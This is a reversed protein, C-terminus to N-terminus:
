KVAAKELPIGGASDVPVLKGHLVSRAEDFSYDCTSLVVYKGEAGTEVESQIESWKRAWNLYSELDPGPEHFVRYTESDASTVYGAFLEVRYDQEPTLLWMVPHAEYYSQQMWDNLPAFMTKDAMHHGYLLVNADSFGNANEEDSFISGSPDYEGMYNRNLYFENDRGYVVPYNIATDECYIWGIVDSGVKQLEEFDVEIPAYVGERAEEAPAAASPNQAAEAKKQQAATSPRTFQEVAAKQVDRSNKYRMYYFGLVVGSTVFVLALVITLIRHLNKKM